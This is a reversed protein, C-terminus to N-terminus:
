LLMLLIYLQFIMGHEQLVRQVIKEMDQSKASGPLKRAVQRRIREVLLSSNKIRMREHNCLLINILYWFNILLFLSYYILVFCWEASKKAGYHYVFLPFLVNEVANVCLFGFCVLVYSDFSITLLLLLLLTVFRDLITLYSVTPLSSAVVFKYAVATLLLTLTIGLRDATGLSTGDDNLTCSLPSLLTLVCIPLIVNSIYYGTRRWLYVTFRCRPYIIGASSETPDSAHVSSVVIDSYVV